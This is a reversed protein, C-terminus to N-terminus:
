KQEKNENSPKDHNSYVPKGDRVNTKTNNEPPPPPVKDVKKYGAADRVANYDDLEQPNLWGSNTYTEVKKALTLQQDIDLLISKFEGWNNKHESPTFNKEIMPKMLQNLICYKAGNGISTVLRDHMSGQHVGLAYSGGSTKLISTPMLLSFMKDETLWELCKNFIDMDGKVDLAEVLVADDKRSPVFLAGTSRMNETEAAMSTLLLEYQADTASKANPNSTSVVRPDVYVIVPTSSRKDIAVPMMSLIFDTVVYNKHVARLLPDGYPSKFQHGRNYTYHICKSKDISVRGVPLNVPTRLPIDVDGRNAIPDVYSGMSNTGMFGTGNLMFGYSNLNNFFAPSYVYIYQLIGDSLVRGEPDVAFLVTSPPLPLLETVVHGLANTEWNKEAVSFGIPVGSLMDQLLNALGGQINNLVENGWEAIKKNPHEYPGFNSVVARILFDMCAGIVGDTSMMRQFTSVSVTSNNYVINGILSYMYPISSGKLKPDKQQNLLAEFGGPDAKNNDGLLYEMIGSLKASGASTSRLDRAAKTQSILKVINEYSM